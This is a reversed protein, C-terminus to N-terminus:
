CIPGNGSPCARLSSCSHNKNMLIFKLYCSFIFGNMTVSKGKEGPGDIGHEQVATNPYTHPNVEERRQCVGIEKLSSEPM